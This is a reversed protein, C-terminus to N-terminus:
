LEAHLAWIREASGAWSFARSRDRALVSLRRSAAGCAEAVAEALDPASASVLMGGDAIVDHHVGSDVAVVPVGLTMAELARWPWSAHPSTAVYTAAGALIAARDADDLRGRVHARQEPLGAAAAIDAIAPEVGEAADLVVAHADSAAAGRFGGALADGTGTVVIYRDPVSLAARREVADTPVAFGSPAAGAIVQIRDGLKSLEALRRAIAHTPVVVADAHKVARKLMARHWAVSTKSMTEPAEWADLCWLTVTTQDHDHVRDHRVLPALLSPAHIMGGGVGPAIGLQWSAALERRALGLPRVAALADISPHGGAPVLAEVSCGSPATAVLGRALDLAATAQDPDVVQVVQDLVVRLRASM